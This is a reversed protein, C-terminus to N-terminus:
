VQTSSFPKKTDDKNIVLNLGAKKASRETKLSLSFTLCLPPNTESFSYEWKSVGSENSATGFCRCVNNFSWWDCLLLCGSNTHFGFPPSNESFNLSSFVWHWLLFSSVKRSRKTDTETDRKEYIAPLSLPSTEILVVQILSFPTPSM